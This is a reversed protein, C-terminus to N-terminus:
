NKPVRVTMGIKMNSVNVSPNMDILEQQKINFKKALRYFTDGSKIKYEGYGALRHDDSRQGMRQEKNPDRRPKIVRPSRQRPEVALTRDQNLEHGTASNVQPNNDLDYSSPTDLYVTGANNNPAISTEDASKNDLDLAIANSKGNGDDGKWQTGLYIAFIALVHLILIVSLAKGIGVSPVDGDLEEASAAASAKVKKRVTRAYMARFGKQAKRKTQLEKKKM